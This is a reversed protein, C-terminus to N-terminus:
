HVRIIGQNDGKNYFFVRGGTLLSLLELYKVNLALKSM